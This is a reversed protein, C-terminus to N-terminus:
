EHGEKWALIQSISSSVEWPTLQANPKPDGPIWRRYVLERVAYRPTKFIKYMLGGPLEMQDMVLYAFERFTVARDNEINKIWKIHESEKLKDIGDQPMAEEPLTGASLYVLWVTTALDAKEQAFFRDLEENSQSFLSWLPILLLISTLAITKINM